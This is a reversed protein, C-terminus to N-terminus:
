KINTSYIHREWLNKDSILYCFSLPLQIQSCRWLSMEAFNYSRLVIIWHALLSHLSKFFCCRKKRYIQSKFGKSYRYLIPLYIHMKYRGSCPSYFSPYLHLKNSLSTDVIRWDRCIQSTWIQQLWRQTALFDILTKRWTKFDKFFAHNKIHDTTEDVCNCM